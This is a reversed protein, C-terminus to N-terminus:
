TAPLRWTIMWLPIWQRAPLVTTVGGVLMYLKVPLLPDILPRDAGNREATIRHLNSGDPDVVYLNTTRVGSYQAYAPWRTSAFVIRGDPLWVPDTDDYPALGAPLGQAALDIRQDSTTVQRLGSGNAQITYIRWAGPNGTANTTYNGAPLGAFVITQGDYSITPANVDILNFTAPAPYTGDILTRITGNAERVLLKGPAAPQFRSYPGVGPMGAPENWYISGQDPIQRSVFVVPYTLPLTTQLRGKVESLEDPAASVPLLSMRLLLIVMVGASFIATILIFQRLLTKRMLWSGEPFFFLNASKFGAL